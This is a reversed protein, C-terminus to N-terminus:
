EDTSSDWPYNFKGHMTGKSGFSFLFTHTKRDLVQIRHNDKDVIILRDFVKDHKVSSPRNFQLSGTGYEGITTVVNGTISM